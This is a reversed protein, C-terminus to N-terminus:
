TDKIKGIVYFLIKIKENIFSNVKNKHHYIQGLKGGATRVKDSIMIEV